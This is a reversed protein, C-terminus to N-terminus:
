EEVPEPTLLTRSGDAAVSWVNTYKAGKSFYMEVVLPLANTGALGAKFAIGHLKGHADTGQPLAYFQQGAPITLCTHGWCDST